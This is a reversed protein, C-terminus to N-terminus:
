PKPSSPFGFILGLIIVLAALAVAVYLWFRKDEFWRTPATVEAAPRGMLLPHLDDLLSDASAHRETPNASLAKRLTEDLKGPLKEDFATLPQYDVGGFGDRQPLRGSLIQYIMLAVRFVDSRQDPEEGRREEPSQFDAEDSVPLRVPDAKAFGESDVLVRGSHFGLFKLGAKAAESSALCLQCAIGLAQDYGLRRERKLWDSVSWGAILERVVFAQGGHRDVNFTQHINEHRIAELGAVRAELGPIDPFLVLEADPGGERRVRYRPWEGGELMAIVRWGGITSGAQLDTVAL